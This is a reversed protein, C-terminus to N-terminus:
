KKRVTLNKTLRALGLTALVGGLAFGILLLLPRTGFKLDLGYGVLAPVVIEAALTMITTAWAFAMAVPSRDSPPEAV